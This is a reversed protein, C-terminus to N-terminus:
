RGSACLPSGPSAPPGPRTPARPPSFPRTGRPTGGHAEAGGSRVWGSAFRSERRLAAPGGGPCTLRRPVALTLATQEGRWGSGPRTGLTGWM